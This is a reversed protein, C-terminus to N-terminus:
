FRFAALMGALVFVVAAATCATFCGWGCGKAGAANRMGIHLLLLAGALAPLWERPSDLHEIM